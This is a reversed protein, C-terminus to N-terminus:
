LKLHLFEGLAIFYYIYFLTEKYKIMLDYSESWRYHFYKQCTENAMRLQQEKTLSKQINEACVKYWNRGQLGFLQGVNNFEWYNPTISNQDTYLHVLIKLILM